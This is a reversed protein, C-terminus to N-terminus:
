SHSVASTYYTLLVHKYLIKWRFIFMSTFTGIYTLRCFYHFVQIISCFTDTFPHPFQININAEFCFLHFHFSCPHQRRFAIDNSLLENALWNYIKWPNGEVEEFFVGYLFINGKGLTYILGVFPESSVSNWKSQWMIQKGRWFLHLSCHRTLLQHSIFYDLLLIYIRPQQM